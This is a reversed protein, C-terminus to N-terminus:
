ARNSIDIVFAQQFLDGLQTPENATRETSGLMKYEAEKAKNIKLYAEHRAQRYMELKNLLVSQHAFNRLPGYNGAKTRQLFLIIDELSLQDEYATLMLECALVSQKTDTLKKAKPLVMKAMFERVIMLLLKHMTKNGYNEILGPIRETQPISLLADFKVTDGASYQQVVLNAIMGYELATINLRPYRKQAAKTTTHKTVAGSSKKFDM